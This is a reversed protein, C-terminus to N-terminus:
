VSAGKRSTSDQQLLPAVPGGLETEPHNAEPETYIGLPEEASDSEEAEDRTTVRRIGFALALLGSGLLILAAPTPVSEALSTIIRRLPTLGVFASRPLLIVRLTPDPHRLTAGNELVTSTEAGLSNAATVHVRKVASSLNLETSQSHGANVSTTSFFGLLAIATVALTYHKLLRTLM